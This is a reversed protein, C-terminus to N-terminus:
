GRCILIIGDLHKLNDECSKHGYKASGKVHVIGEIMVSGSKTPLQVKEHSLSKLTKGVLFEFSFPGYIEELGPKSVEKNAVHILVKKRGGNPNVSVRQSAESTNWLAEVTDEVLHVSDENISIDEDESKYNSEGKKAMKLSVWKELQELMNTFDQNYDEFKQSPLKKDKFKWELGWIRRRSIVWLQGSDHELIVIIYGVFTVYM